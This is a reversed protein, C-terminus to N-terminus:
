VIKTAFCLRALLACAAPSAANPFPLSCGARWLLCRGQIHLKFKMLARGSLLGLAQRAPGSSRSWPARTNRPAKQDRSQDARPLCSALKNREESPHNQFIDRIFNTNSFTFYKLPLLHFILLHLAKNTKKKKKGFATVGTPFASSTSPPSTELLDIGRQKPAIPNSQPPSSIGIQAPKPKCCVDAREKIQWASSDKEARTAKRATQM